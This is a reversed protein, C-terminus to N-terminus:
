DSVELNYKVVVSKAVDKLIEVFENDNTLNKFRNIGRM